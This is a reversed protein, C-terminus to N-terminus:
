RSRYPGVRDTALRQAQFDHQHRRRLATVAMLVVLVAVFLVVGVLMAVPDPQLM